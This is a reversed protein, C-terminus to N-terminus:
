AIEGAQFVSQIGGDRSGQAAHRHGRDPPRATRGATGSICRRRNEGRLRARREIQPLFDNGRSSRAVIQPHDDDGCRRVRFSECGLSLLDFSTAIIIIIPFM